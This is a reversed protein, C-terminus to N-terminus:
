QKNIQSKQVVHGAICGCGWWGSSSSFYSTLHIIVRPEPQALANMATLDVFLLAFFLIARYGLYM